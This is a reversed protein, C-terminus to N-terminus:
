ALFPLALIGAGLLAGFVVIGILSLALMAGNLWVGWLALAREPTGRRLALIGLILGVIPAFFTWGSVISALGLVFSTVAFAPGQPAPQLAPQPAASPTPGAPAFGSGSGADPAQIATVERTDSALIATDRQDSTPAEVEFETTAAGDTRTDNHTTITTM